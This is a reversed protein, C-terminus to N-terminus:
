EERKRGLLRLLDEHMEFWVTHYSDCRVGSVWDNEGAEARELASGLRDTYRALRPVRAALAAIVSEAREHLDGLRSIVKEDYDADSHDNPVSQGGVTMTQWATILAKLERNVTEFRHYAAALDADSRAAAFETPYATDLWATGTPSLLRVGRAEIVLKEAAAAALTTEIEERAIGTSRELADVDAKRRLAIAHLVAFRSM